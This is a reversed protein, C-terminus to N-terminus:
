RAVEGGAGIEELVTALAADLRRVVEGGSDATQRLRLAATLARVLAVAGPRDDAAVARRVLVRLLTVEDDLGREPAGDIAAQEAATLAAAYFNAAEFAVGARVARQRRPRRRPSDEVVM